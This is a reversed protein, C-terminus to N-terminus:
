AALKVPLLEKGKKVTVEGGLANILKIFNRLTLNTQKGSRIGQLVSPSLGIEAALKRVSRNNEAMLALILESLVLKSYEKQFLKNANPDRLDRDFTSRRKKNTKM